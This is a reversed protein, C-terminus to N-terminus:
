TVRQAFPAPGASLPLAREAAQRANTRNTPYRHTGLSKNAAIGDGVLIFCSHMDQRTTASSFAGHSGGSYAEDFAGTMANGMRYGPKLAIVFRAQDSLGSKALQEPGLIAAIGAGPRLALASLFTAVDRELATDGPDRLVVM